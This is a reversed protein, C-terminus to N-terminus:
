TKAMKITARVHLLDHQSYNTNIFRFFSHKSPDLTMGMEESGRSNPKKVPFPCIGTSDAAQRKCLDSERPKTNFPLRAAPPVPSGNKYRRKVHLIQIYHLLSNKQDQTDKSDM